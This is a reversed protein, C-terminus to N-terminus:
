IIIICSWCNIFYKSKWFDSGYFISDYFINNKYQQTAVNFTNFASNGCYYINSKKCCINNCSWWYLADNISSESADITLEYQAIAISLNSLYSIYIFSTSAYLNISENNHSSPFILNLWVDM